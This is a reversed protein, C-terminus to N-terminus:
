LNEEFDDDTAHVNGVSSIADDFIKLCTNCMYMPLLSKESYYIINNVDFIKCGLCKSYGKGINM